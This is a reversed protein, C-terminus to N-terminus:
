ILQIRVQDYRRESRRKRRPVRDDCLRFYRGAHAAKGASSKRLSLDSRSVPLNRSALLNMRRLEMETVLRAEQNWAERIRITIM